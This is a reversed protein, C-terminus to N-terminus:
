KHACCFCCLRSTSPPMESAEQQEPSYNQKGNREWRKYSQISLLDEPVSHEEEDGRSGSGGGGLLRQRLEEVCVDGSAVEMQLELRGKEYEEQM